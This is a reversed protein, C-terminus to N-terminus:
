RGVLLDILLYSPKNMPFNIFDKFLPSPCLDELHTAVRERLVFDLCIHRISLISLRPPCVYIISTISLCSLCIHHVFTVSRHSPPVLHVSSVSSLLCPITLFYQLLAPWWDSSKNVRLWDFSFFESREFFIMM